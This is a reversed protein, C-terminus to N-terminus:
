LVMKGSGGGRTKKYAEIVKRGPRDNRVLRRPKGEPLGLYQRVEPGLFEEPFPEPPKLFATEPFKIGARKLGQHVRLAAEMRRLLGEDVPRIPVWGDRWYRIAAEKLEEIKVTQIHRVGGRYENFLGNWMWFDHLFEGRWSIASNPGAAM